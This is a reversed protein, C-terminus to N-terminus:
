WDNVMCCSWVWVWSLKGFWEVLDIVVVLGM